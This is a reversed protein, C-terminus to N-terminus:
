PLLARTSLRAPDDIADLVANFETRRELASLFHPELALRVGNDPLIELNAALDFLLAIDEAAEIAAEESGTPFGPGYVETLGELGVAEAKANLSRWDFWRAGGLNWLPPGAPGWYKYGAIPAHEFCAFIEDRIIGRTACTTCSLTFPEM